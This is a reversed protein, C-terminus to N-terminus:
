RSPQKLRRELCRSGISDELPAVPVYLLPPQVKPHPIAIQGIMQRRSVRVMEAYM